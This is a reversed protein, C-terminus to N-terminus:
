LPNESYGICEDPLLVTQKLLIQRILVATIPSLHLGYRYHGTAVYGNDFQPLRGILPTGTLYYPRLGAWCREFRAGKLSPVVRQAFRVLDSVAEATNRKDFGAREETSGILIRGDARPVMYERGLQIVSRFPLPISQLLVIQGKIPEIKLPVGIQSLMEGSWAGGTIVYHDAQHLDGGGVKVGAIRDGHLEFQRVPSGAVLEAGRLSCGIQLAKLYRPNRVQRFDPLFYAASIEPTLAPVRRRIEAVDCSEVVVGENRLNIVEDVFNSAHDQSDAFRIEVGGCRLFGIDTGTSSVLSESWDPWCEHAAGRLRAEATRASSLCGPPLMGAGAWSAERGFDGQELVRVTLGQGVLEWAISLGIVGGGIVIVDPRKVIAQLDNRERKPVM